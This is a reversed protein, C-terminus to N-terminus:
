INMAYEPPLAQINDTYSVLLNFFILGTILSFLGILIYALPSSFYGQMEKKWIHIVM